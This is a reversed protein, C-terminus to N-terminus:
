GWVVVIERGKRKLLGDKMEGKGGFIFVFGREIGWEKLYDGLRELGAEHADGGCWQKIQVVERQEGVELRLSLRREVGEHREKFCRGRGKLILQLYGLFLLRGQQHGVGRGREGAMKQVFVQFYRVVRNMDLRGSGDFFTVGDLVMGEGRLLMKVMMHGYIGQEVVRNAVQWGDEAAVLVGAEGGLRIVRESGMLSVQEGQLVIKQVLSYLDRHRELLDIVWVVWAVLREGSVMQRFAEDVDAVLWGKNRRSPLIEEDILRCMQNVLVPQGATYYHIRGAIEGRELAVEREQSYALLMGAVEAVTLSLDVVLATGVSWSWVGEGGGSSGAVMTGGALDRESVVVVSQWTGARGRDREWYKHALMELWDVFPQYDAGKEGGDVLLVLQKEAPMMEMLRTVVGSLAVMTWTRGEQQAVFLAQEAWGWFVLETYVLRLFTDIFTRQQALSERDVQGWDILLAVYQDHAQLEQQLNYLLSSKGSQRPSKMTVYAGRDVLLMLREVVSSRDVCYHRDPVSLGVDNFIRKM